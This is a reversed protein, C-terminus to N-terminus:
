GKLVENMRRYSGGNIGHSSLLLLYMAGKRRRQLLVGCLQEHKRKNSGDSVGSRTPGTPADANNGCRDDSNRKTLRKKSREAEEEGEWQAAETQRVFSDPAIMM